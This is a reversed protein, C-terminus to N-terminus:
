AFTYARSSNSMDGNRYLNERAPAFSPELAIAARYHKMAGQNDGTAELLIGMLNHPHPAHPYEGIASVIQEKCTSYERNELLKKIEASFENLRKWDQETLLDAM